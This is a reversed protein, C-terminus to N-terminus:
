TRGGFRQVFVAQPTDYETITTLVPTRAHAAVSIERRLAWTLWLWRGQRSRKPLWLWVKRWPAHMDSRVWM